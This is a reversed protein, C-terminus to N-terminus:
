RLGFLPLQKTEQGKTERALQEIRDFPVQEASILSRQAKISRVLGEQVLHFEGVTQGPLVAAPDLGSESQFAAKLKRLATDERVRGIFWSTIQDRSKYDLDGPSQTALMLGLGASRARKLLSQLPEATAPKSNAPIYLDAEDFMVVAQLEDNPNRQCFRLAESLFQAVWFLINENDGLFGTYIISLRTRGPQAYPGIGLLAEMRLSEGGADFLASNRHRLSDLQAVLDRRIKGSPDMRQTLDTLEPDENELLYILDNLTVETRSRSGLIKLAVSLTGSQKQHTASNKLHPMDGLAAASLNALLQQEHEPLESIGNPLLTISIPRGSARGPTYVAVDIAEALRRREAARREDFEHEHARWVEPNAYSCLDGKRDILVAPIGRLLLQEIISLALTTKGSGSGGLVAAHRKLVDRNLRVLRNTGNERGALISDEDDGGEDLLVSMPLPDDNAPLPETRSSSGWGIWDAWAWRSPKEVIPPDVPVPDAQAASGATEREESPQVEPVSSHSSAAADTQGRFMETPQTRPRIMGSGVPIVNVGSPPGLLDLRLLQVIPIMGSLLKAQEFWRDFGPDYRHHAHFERVMMMREWDPIPVLLSRGGNDRFKRFAQATQNKRNPPFDSARLMFSARGGMNMLVKELQRKLGGGQTPRNCLFVRSEFTLEGGGRVHTVFLDFAPVDDAIELRKVRFKIQEGWEERALGLAAILVDMLESDNSPMEAESAQSFRQWLDRYDIGPPIESAAPEDNNPAFGLAAALTSIFGAKEPPSEVEPEDEMTNTQQARLRNQAHELLRRTSLGGFEEFFQPGFFATPDPFTPGGNRLSAEHELRKAIILRAEEPTRTELLAVPGAKEIRDIYSQALVGRVQGYFDELCSIIIIATPVRNAIQILDRVAKQFRDEADEFFRLDEVQDICFVLAAREVTWILKGIAEIIEFARGDGSNPDLAAVAAHSLENLQRGQLYQRVRQDIRPDCRQLYLLARVVNVDLDQDAFAPSAIIEDALRLILQALAREDLNAERLEKLDEEPLVDAMSVLRNTLRTLASEGGNDPDYPKELSAIIRRLYYDAYNSVDPTMQAYGFYAKGQRHSGTRLARILHTKGAGSQGHFLLIRAQTGSGRGSTVADLLDYFKRRAKAHVQEVDVPDARWIDDEWTISHEFAASLSDVSLATQATPQM